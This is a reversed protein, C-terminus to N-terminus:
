FCFGKSFDLFQQDTWGQGMKDKLPHLNQLTYPHRSDANYTSPNAYFSPILVDVYTEVSGSAGQSFQIRLAQYSSTDGRLNIVLSVQDFFSGETMSASAAMAQVEQYNFIQYVYSQPHVLSFGGSGRKEFQYPLPTQDVTSQNNPSVAWKRIVLDWNGVKWGSPVKTFKLRVMDNRSNGYIDVYKMLEVQLEPNKSDYNSQSCDAIYSNSSTGSTSSSSGTYTSIASLGGKSKSAGCAIISSIAILCLTIKLTMQTYKYTETQLNMIDGPKDTDVLEEQKTQYM